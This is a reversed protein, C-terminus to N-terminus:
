GRADIGSILDKELEACRGNSRRLSRLPRRRHRNKDPIKRQRRHPATRQPVTPLNKGHLRRQGCAVVVDGSTPQLNTNVVILDGQRIEAEMSDGVVRIMYVSSGGGTIFENLDIRELETCIDAPEGAPISVSALLVNNETRAALERMTSYM